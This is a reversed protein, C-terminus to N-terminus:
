AAGGRPPVTSSNADTIDNIYWGCRPCKGSSRVLRKATSSFQHACHLCRCELEYRSSQPKIRNTKAADEQTLLIVVGPYESRLSRQYVRTLLAAKQAHLVDDDEFQLTLVYKVALIDSISRLVDVLYRYSREYICRIIPLGQDAIEVAKDDRIRVLFIGNAICFDTKAMDHALRGADHHYGDYEFALKFQNSYMDFQLKKGNYDMPQLYELDPVARKIIHYLIYQAMSDHYVVCANSCGMPQRVRDAVRQTHVDACYDCNFPLMLHSNVSIAEPCFPKPYKEDDLKNYEEINVLAAIDPRETKLNKLPSARKGNCVRCPDKANVFDAARMPKADAGHDPCTIYIMANSQESLMDPYIGSEGNRDWAFNRNCRESHRGYLSDEPRVKEGSCYECLDYNHGATLLTYIRNPSKSFIGGCIRCVWDVEKGSGHTIKTPDYKKDLIEAMEPKESIYM